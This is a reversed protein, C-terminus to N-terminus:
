MGRAKKAPVRKSPAAQIDVFPETRAATFVCLEIIVGGSAISSQECAAFRVQGLASRHAGLATTLVSFRKHAGRRESIDVVGRRREAM